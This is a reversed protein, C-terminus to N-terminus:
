VSNYVRYKGILIKTKFHELSDPISLVGPPQPGSLLSDLLFIFSFLWSIKRSLKYRQSEVLRTCEEIKIINLEEAVNKQIVPARHIRQGKSNSKLRPRLSFGAPTLDNPIFTWYGLWFAVTFGALSCRKESSSTDNIYRSIHRLTNSSKQSFRSFSIRPRSHPVVNKTSKTWNLRTM